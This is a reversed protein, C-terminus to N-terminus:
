KWPCVLVDEVIDMYLDAVIPADQKRRMGIGYVTGVATL